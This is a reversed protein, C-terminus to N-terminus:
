PLNMPEFQLFDDFQPFQLLDELRSFVELEINIEQLEYELHYKLEGSKTNKDVSSKAEPPLTQMSKQLNGGFSAVSQQCEQQRAVFEDMRISSPRGSTFGGCQVNDVNSSRCMGDNNRGRAVYDDVHM